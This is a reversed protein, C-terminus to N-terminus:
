SAELIEFYTALGKEIVDRSCFRPDGHDGELIFGPTGTREQVLRRIQPIATSFMKCSRDNHFIFGDLHYKEKQDVILDVRRNLHWDFYHLYEETWSAFPHEPDLKFEAWPLTYITSVLCAGFSDLLTSLWKLEHWLPLSDWYLRHKEHAMAGIGKEARELVEKKLKTYFDLAVVSGRQAVVPAMSFFQDFVSIPAPTSAAANLIDAWLATTENSLSIVQALRDAELRNGSINELFTVLEKLQAHVYKFCHDSPSKGGTYPVDILFLPVKYYESMREFWKTLTGCQANTTLFFDPKPLGGVPSRGTMAYGLDCLAYSCLGPEYGLRQPEETIEATMKRAQLFVAHNEPYIPIIDMAYFLEAPAFVNVFGVKRGLQAANRAEEYYTDNISRLLKLTQISTDSSKVKEEGLCKRLLRLGQKM